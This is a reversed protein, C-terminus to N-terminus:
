FNGALFRTIKSSESTTKNTLEVNGAKISFGSEAGEETRIISVAKLAYAKQKDVRTQAEKADAGKLLDKPLEYEVALAFSGQLNEQHARIYSIVQAALEADVGQDRLFAGAGEVGKVSAEQILAAGKIVQESHDKIVQRTVKLNWAATLGASAGLGRREATFERGRPNGEVGKDEDEGEAEEGAEEAEEAGSENTVADKVKEKILEQMDLSAEARAELKGQWSTELTVGEMGRTVQRAIRGSASASVGLGFGAVSLPDLRTLEVKASVSAGGELLSVLSMNRCDALDSRAALGNTLKALFAACAEDSTFTLSLGSQLKGEAEASVSVVENFLDAEVGLGAEYARSLLVAPRGNEDRFMVCGDKMGAALKLAVNGAGGELVTASLKVSRDRSLELNEGPKMDQLISLAADEMDRRNKEQLAMDPTQSRPSSYVNVIDLVKAAKVGAELAKDLGIERTNMLFNLALMRANDPSVGMKELNAAISEGASTELYSKNSKLEGDLAAKFDAFSEHGSAAVAELAAKQVLLASHGLQKLTDGATVDTKAASLLKATEVTLDMRAQMGAIRHSAGTGSLVLKDRRLSDPISGQAENGNLAKGLARNINNVHSESSHTKHRIIVDAKEMRNDRTILALTEQRLTELRVSETEGLPKSGSALKAMERLNAQLKKGDDDSKEWVKASSASRMRELNINHGSGINLQDLVAYRAEPPRTHLASINKADAENISLHLDLIARTMQEQREGAPLDAWQPNQRNLYTALLLGHEFDARNGGQRWDTQTIADLLAAKFQEAKDPAQGLDALSRNLGLKELQTDSLGSIDTVLSRQLLHLSVALTEGELGQTDEIGQAKLLTQVLPDNKDTELATATADAAGTAAAAAGSDKALLPHDTQTKKAILPDLSETVIDSTMNLGLLRAATMQAALQANHRDRDPRSQQLVGRFNESNMAGTAAQLLATAEETQRTSILGKELFDRLDNVRAQYAQPLL